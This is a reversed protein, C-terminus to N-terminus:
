TYQKQCCFYKMLRSSADGAIKVAEDLLNSINKKERWIESWFLKQLVSQIELKFLKHFHNWESKIYLSYTIVMMKLQLKLCGRSTGLYSYLICSAQSQCFPYTQHVLKGYYPQQTQTYTLYTPVVKNHFVPQWGQGQHKDMAFFLM